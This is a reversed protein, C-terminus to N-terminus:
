SQPWPLKFLKITIIHINLPLLLHSNDMTTMNSAPHHHHHHWATQILQIINNEILINLWWRSTTFTIFLLMGQTQNKAHANKAGTALLYHCAHLKSASAAPQLHASLKNANTEQSHKQSNTPTIQTILFLM